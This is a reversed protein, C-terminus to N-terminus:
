ISASIYLILREVYGAITHLPRATRALCPVNRELRGLVSSGKIDITLLCRSEPSHYPAKQYRNVVRGRWSHVSPPRASSLM